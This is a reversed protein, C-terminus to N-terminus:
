AEGDTYSQGFENAERTAAVVLANCNQRTRVKFHVESGPPLSVSTSWVDGDGWSLEPARNLDWEGLEPASGM